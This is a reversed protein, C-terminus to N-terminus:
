IIVTKTELKKDEEEDDKVLASKFLANFIHYYLRACLVCVLCCSPLSLLYNVLHEERKNNVENNCTSSLM